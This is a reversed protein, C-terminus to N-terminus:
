RTSRPGGPPEGRSGAAIMGSLGSWVLATSYETVQDLSFSPHAQWWRGVHAGIGILANAILPAATPELGLTAMAEAILDTVRGALGDLMVGLGAGSLHVPADRTIVAHGEPHDQVYAFFARLGREALDRPEGPARLAETITAGVRDIEAAVVAQFLGHKDGFHSYLIPRSVGARAAIEELTAAEFGRAAFVTRAAGVLQLRRDGRPMRTKKTAV